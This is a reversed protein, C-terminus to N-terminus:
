NILDYMKREDQITYLQTIPNIGITNDIGSNAILNYKYEGWLTNDSVSTKSSDNTIKVGNDGLLPYVSMINNNNVLTDINKELFIGYRFYAIKNYKINLKAGNYSYVGMTNNSVIKNNNINLNTANNLEIGYSRSGFIMNNRIMINYDYRTFAGHEMQDRCVLGSYYSNIIKNAVISLTDSPFSVFIGNSTSDAIINNYINCTRCMYVAVKGGRVYNCAFHSKYQLSFSVSDGSFNSYFVNNYIRNGTDLTYNNYANITSIGETLGSPGAFFMTFTDSAGYFYCGAIVTNNTTAGTLCVKGLHNCKLYINQFLVNNSRIAIGDLNNAQIIQADRANNTLGIFRINDRRITLVSNLKYIGPSFVFTTKTPNLSIIGDIFPTTKADLILTTPENLITTVDVVTNGNPATNFKNPIM